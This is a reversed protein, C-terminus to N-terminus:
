SSGEDRTHSGCILHRGETMFTSLPLSLPTSVTATTLSVHVCMPSHPWVFTIHALFTIFELSIQRRVHPSM